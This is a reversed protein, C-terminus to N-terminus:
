TVLGAILDYIAASNTPPAFRKTPPAFLKTPPYADLTSLTFRVEPLEECFLVDVDPAIEDVASKVPETTDLEVM